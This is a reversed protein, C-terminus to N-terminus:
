LKQRLENHLANAKSFAESIDTGLNMKYIDEFTHTNGELLVKWAKGSDQKLNTLMTIKKGSVTVIDARVDGEGLVVGNDSDDVVNYLIAGDAQVKKASVNILHYVLLM